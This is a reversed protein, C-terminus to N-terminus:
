SHSTLFEVLIKEGVKFVVYAALSIVGYAVISLLQSLAGDLLAMVGYDAILSLNAKLLAFINYSGLGFVIASLLMVAFTLLPRKKLFSLSTM